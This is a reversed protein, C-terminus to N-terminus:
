YVVYHGYWEFELQWLAAQKEVLTFFYGRQEMLEKSSGREVVHGERLCIIEDETVVFVFVIATRHSLASIPIVQVDCDDSPYGRLAWDM